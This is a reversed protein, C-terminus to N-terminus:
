LWLLAYTRVTRPIASLTLPSAFYSGRPLTRSFLCGESKTSRPSDKEPQFDSLWLDHLKRNVGTLPMVYIKEGGVTAGGEVAASKTYAFPDKRVVM